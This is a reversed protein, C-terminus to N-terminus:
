RVIFNLVLNTELATLVRHHIKTKIVGKKIHLLCLMIKGNRKEFDHITRILNRRRSFITEFCRFLAFTAM